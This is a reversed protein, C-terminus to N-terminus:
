PLSKGKEPWKATIICLSGLIYLLIRAKFFFSTQKELHEFSEKFHGWDPFHTNLADFNTSVTTQGHYRDSHLAEDYEAMWIAGLQEYMEYFYGDVKLQTAEEEWCQWGFAALLLALGIPELWKKLTKTDM